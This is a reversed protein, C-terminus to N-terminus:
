ALYLKRASLQIGNWLLFRVLILTFLVMIVQVLFTVGLSVSAIALLFRDWWVSYPKIRRVVKRFRYILAFDFISYTIFVCLYEFFVLSTIVEKRYHTLLSTLTTASDVISVLSFLGWSSNLVIFAIAFRRKFRSKRFEKEKRCARYMGILSVLVSLAFVAIQLPLEVDEAIDWLQEESSLLDSSASSSNM